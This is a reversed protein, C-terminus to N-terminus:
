GQSGEYLWLKVLMEDLVDGNVNIGDFDFRIYINGNLPIGSMYSYSSSNISTYNRIITDTQFPKWTYKNLNFIDIDEEINSIKINSIYCVNGL